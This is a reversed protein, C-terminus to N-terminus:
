FHALAQRATALALRTKGIGGEGILTILPYEPDRVLQTVRTLEDERGFFSTLSRPLNHRPLPVTLASLDELQNARIRQYLAATQETPVVGFEEALIKRCAAYQELAAGRQDTHALLLMRQRHATERWPELAL